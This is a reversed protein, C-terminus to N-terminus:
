ISAEVVLSGKRVGMKGPLEKAWMAWSKASNVAMKM